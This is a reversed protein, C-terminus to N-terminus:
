SAFDSASNKMPLSMQAAQVPQASYAFNSQSAVLGFIFFLFMAGRPESVAAHGLMFWSLFGALSALIAQSYLSAYEDKSQRIKKITMGLGALFLLVYAIAALMGYGYYAAAFVAHTAAESGELLSNNTVKWRAFGQGFFLFIPNETVHRFPEPYAFLRETLSVNEYPNELVSRTTFVLRDFYFYESNWGLWSFVLLSLSLGVVIPRRVKSSTLFAVTILVLLLGAIAGRSYSMVVAIPILLMACVLAVKWLTSLKQSARLLFLLPWITNLFAASLISVGVLSRGRGAGGQLYDYVTLIGGPELFRNLFVYKMAFDRTAPLSSLIMLVATILAGLLGFKMISALDSKSQIIKRTLFFLSIALLTRIILYIPEAFTGLQLGASLESIIAAMLIFIVYPELLSRKSQQINGASLWTLVTLLDIAYIPISNVEIRLRPFAMLVFVSISLLQLAAKHNRTKMPPNQTKILVNPLNVM